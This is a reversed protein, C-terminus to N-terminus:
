SGDGLREDLRGIEYRTDEIKRRFYALGDEYQGVLIRDKQVQEVLMIRDFEDQERDDM